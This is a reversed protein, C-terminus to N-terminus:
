HVYSIHLLHTNFSRLTYTANSKTYKLSFLYM